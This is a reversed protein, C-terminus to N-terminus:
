FLGHSMGKGREEGKHTIYFNSNTPTIFCGTSQPHDMCGRLYLSVLIRGRNNLPVSHNSLLGIPVVHFYKPSTLVVIPHHHPFQHHGFHKALRDDVVVQFRKLTRIFLMTCGGNWIDLTGEISISAIDISRLSM